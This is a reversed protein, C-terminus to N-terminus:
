VNIIGPRGNSITDAEKAKELATSISFHSTSKFIGKHCQNAFEWVANLLNCHLKSDILNM